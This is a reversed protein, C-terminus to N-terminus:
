NDKILRIFFHNYFPSFPHARPAFQSHTTLATTLQSLLVPRSLADVNSHIRGKRHIISFDFTQLQISWRELRACLKKSSFLWTLASHDTILTFHRGYLFVYFKLISWLVALCELESISYHTESAKLTRSAYYCVYDRGNEDRQGLIAGLGLISADTFLIFEREFNPQRLIPNAM